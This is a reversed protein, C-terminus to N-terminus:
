EDLGSLWKSLEAIQMPSLPGGNAHSFSPMRRNIGHELITSLADAEMGRLGPAYAGRAEGGHCMACVAAYIEGGKVKGKAPEVHCVACKGDFMGRGGMTDAHPNERVRLSLRAEARRGLADLVTVKKEISDGKATTDIVVDLTTFGGPPVERSGLKSVTCGCASQVDVIYLPFVGTNRVFLRVRAEEGEMVEGIDFHQPQILFDTNSVGEQKVQPSQHAPPAACALMGACILLASLITCAGRMLTEGAVM